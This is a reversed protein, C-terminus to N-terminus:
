REALLCELVPHRGKVIRIYPAANVNNEVDLIEPWVYDASMSVAALSLLADLIAACSVARSWVARSEDFREFVNRMTDKQALDLRLYLVPFSHTSLVSTPVQAKIRIYRPRIQSLRAYSPLAHDDVM